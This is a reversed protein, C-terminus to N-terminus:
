RVAARFAARIERVAQQPQQLHPYHGVQPLVALPAGIRRALEVGMGKSIYIDQEGWVVKVPTKLQYLGAEFAQQDRTFHSYYHFFADASTLTGNRWGRAMDAKFDASVTYRQEPALGRTFANELIEDRSNNFADRVVMASGPTKLAQLREQMYQPRDFPAFDGVIIAKAIAPDDIAALLAPLAGIDTAYIVLNRKDIGAQNIYDKLVKAYDAPAYAFRDATPRSSDGYGPWDFAHVEYETGLAPAIADWAHLTEPFGHLLLVTGKPDDNHVVMRRLRIESNVAVHGIETGALRPVDAAACGAALALGVTAAVCTAAAMARGFGTPPQTSM